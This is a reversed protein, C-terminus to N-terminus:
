LKRQHSKESAKSSGCPCLVGQDLRRSTKKAILCLAMTQEAAVSGGETTNVDFGMMEAGKEGSLKWDRFDLEKTMVEQMEKLIEIKKLVSLDAWASRKESVQKLRDFGDDEIGVVPHM